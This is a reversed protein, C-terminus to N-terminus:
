SIITHHHQTNQTNDGAPLQERVEELAQKAVAQGLQQGVAGRRCRGLQQVVLHHAVDQPTTSVACGQLLHTHTYVSLIPCHHTNSCLTFANHASTTPHVPSHTLKFRPLTLSHLHQGTRCAVQACGSSHALPGACTAQQRVPWCRCLSKDRTHSCAQWHMSYPPRMLRRLRRLRPPEAANTTRGTRGCVDGRVQWSTEVGVWACRDGSQCVSSAAQRGQKVVCV